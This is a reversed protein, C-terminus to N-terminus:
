LEPFIAEIWMGLENSALVVRSTSNAGAPRYDIVLGGGEVVNPDRLSGIAIITAGELGEPLKDRRRFIDPLKRVIKASKLHSNEESM